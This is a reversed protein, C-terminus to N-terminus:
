GIMELITPAHRSYGYVESIVERVLYKDLTKQEYLKKIWKSALREQELTECSQLVRVAKKYADYKNINM